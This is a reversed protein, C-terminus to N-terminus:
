SKGATRTASSGAATQPFLRHPPSSFARVQKSVEHLEAGAAAARQMITQVHHARSPHTLVILKGCQLLPVRSRECFEKMSANGRVCFAAKHSDSGYYVGAHLVGSNTSSAQSGAAFARDVLAISCAPHQQLLHRVVHVGVVGAGAVVFDFTKRM